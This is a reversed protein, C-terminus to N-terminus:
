WLLPKDLSWFLPLIQITIYTIFQSDYLFRLDGWNKWIRCLSHTQQISVEQLQVEIYYEPKWPSLMRRSKLLLKGTFPFLWKCRRWTGQCINFKILSGIKYTLHCYNRCFYFSVKVTSKSTIVINKWLLLNWIFRLQVFFRWLEILM